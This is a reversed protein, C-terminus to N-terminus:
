YESKPLKTLDYLLYIFLLSVLVLGVIQSPLDTNKSIANIRIFMQEFVWAFALLLATLRTKLMVAIVLPISVLVMIEFNQYLYVFILFVVIGIAKFFYNFDLVIKENLLHSTLMLLLYLLILLNILLEYTFGSFNLYIIKEVLIPLSGIYILSLIVYSVIKKNKFAAILVAVFTLTIKILNGIELLRLNNINQYHTYIDLSYMGILIIILLGFVSKSFRYTGNLKM